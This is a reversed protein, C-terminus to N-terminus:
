LWAYLKSIESSNDVIHTELYATYSQRLAENNYLEEIADAASEVNMKCISGNVHDTFQDHVTSFNTVVIPRCLLKAEDLAISKGEFRSLHVVIDAKRIYPYPNSKVGLLRVRDAIRLDVIMQEYDCDGTLSGVFWWEFDIDRIQLERAVLLALDSGKQKNLHGISVFLMRGVGVQEEIPSAALNKILNPSVINQMLYVKSACAPFVEKMAEVCTDSITYIGDVKPYYAKDVSLYFPWQRYDTHFFSIKKECQCKDVMYYLQHQGGYDVILDYHKKAVRPMLRSLWWGSWGKGICLSIIPRLLSGLFLPINFHFLLELLGKAGSTLATLRYDTIVRVGIPIQSTFVGYTNCLLLSIDYRQKDIVNLLMLLSKSVGGSDLTGHIFLIKKRMM